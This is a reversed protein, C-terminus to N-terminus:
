WLSLNGSALVWAALLLNSTAHAAIADGIRGSRKILLAYVLGALIGVIWQQGHMLGFAVSSLGVALASLNRFAVGDFDRHLFRRALYGRFALEEAIPVTIVAAAIRFAMWTYRTAPSLAALSSGLFSSATHATWWTPAIWIAFVLAGGIPATWNFHWDLKRYEARYHWLAIAAVVFRLPYLWEFQGSAAKSIFSAALIALFPVLFAATAPSEGAEEEFAFGTPNRGPSVTYDAAVPKRVWALKRTAMSFTLAVATFAIWGAQSHFGVMAADGQGANGILVLASIRVINLTWACALACPVLLLAQPFRNEKRFYWLWVTTFVLVLGLGELGSCAEAIIVTFRPTGITFASPDVSVDPLLFRLVFQVSDFAALQLARAPASSSGEWFSQFPHKLAWALVGAIAAYLWLPSTTRVTRILARLPICSLTLLLIGLALALRIELLYDFGHSIAISGEYVGAMCLLHACFLPWSFPLEERESKLRSYGLGLFVAFSVIGFPALPGVLADAHPVSAVVLCDLAAVGALLFLRGLLYRPVLSRSQSHNSGTCARNSYPILAL